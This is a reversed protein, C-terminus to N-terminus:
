RWDPPQPPPVYAVEPEKATQRSWRSQLGPGLEAPRQSETEPMGRWIYLYWFIPQAFFGVFFLLLTWMIKLNQDLRETKFVRIIYFVTLGMHGFITLLHLALFAVFGFPILASGPGRGPPGGNPALMVMLFIGVMFLFMYLIPWITAIGLLVKNSKKM